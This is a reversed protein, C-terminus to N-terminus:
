YRRTRGGWQHTEFGSSGLDRFCDKKAKLLAKKAFEERDKEGKESNAEQRDKLLYDPGQHQKDAGAVAWKGLIVTAKKQPGFTSYPAISGPEIKKTLAPNHKMDPKKSTNDKQIM